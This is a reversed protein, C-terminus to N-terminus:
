LIMNLVSRVVIASGMMLLTSRAANVPGLERFLLIVTAIYPFFMALVVSAVVLQGPNLALPAVMGIAMDKRLFGIVLGIVADKPLGLLKEVVPSTFNEIANMVGLTYLINVLFIGLLVILLAEKLFGLMRIGLKKFLM